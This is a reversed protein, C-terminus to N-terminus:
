LIRKSPKLKFISQTKPNDAHKLTTRCATTTKSAQPPSSCQTFGRMGLGNCVSLHCSIQFFISWFNNDSLFSVSFLGNRPFENLHFYKKLIRISPKLKFNIPNESKSTEPTQTTRSVKSAPRGKCYQISGWPGILQLSVLWFIIQPFVSISDNTIRCNLLYFPLMQNLYLSTTTSSKISHPGHPTSRFVLTFAHDSCIHPQAYGKFPNTQPRRFKQM